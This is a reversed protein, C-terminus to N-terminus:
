STNESSVSIATCVLRMRSPVPIMLTKEREGPSMAMCAAVRSSIESPRKTSPM